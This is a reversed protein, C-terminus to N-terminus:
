LENWVLIMSCSTIRFHNPKRFSVLSSKQLGLQPNRKMMRIEIKMVMSSRTLDDLDENSLLYAHQVIHETTDDAVMVTMGDGGVEREVDLINNINAEITLLATGAKM